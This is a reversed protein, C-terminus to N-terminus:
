KIIISLYKMFVVARCTNLVFIWISKHKQLFFFPKFSFFKFFNHFFIIFLYFFCLLFKYTICTTYVLLRKQNAMLKSQFLLELTMLCNEYKPIINQKTTCHHQWITEIINQENIICTIIFKRLIHTITSRFVSWVTFRTRM